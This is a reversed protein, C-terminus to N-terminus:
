WFRWRLYLGVGISVGVAVWAILWIVPANALLAGITAGGWLSIVVALAFNVWERVTTGTVTEGTVDM